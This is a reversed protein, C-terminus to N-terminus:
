TTDPRQGQIRSEAQACEALADGVYAFHLPTLPSTPVRCANSFATFDLLNLGDRAPGCGPFNSISSTPRRDRKCQGVKFVDVNLEMWKLYETPLSAFVCRRPRGTRM